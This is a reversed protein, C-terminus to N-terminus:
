SPRLLQDLIMRLSCCPTVLNFTVSGPQVALKAVIVLFFDNEIEIEKDATVLLILVHSVHGGEHINKLSCFPGRHAAKLTLPTLTSSNSNHMDTLQPILLRCVRKLAM